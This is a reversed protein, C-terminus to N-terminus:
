QERRLGPLLHVIIRGAEPDVDRVVEEVAPLLIDGGPGRVIFVDNARTELVESVTGLREGDETEVSAGIIQFHYYEGPELPAADELSVLILMGRLKEADNRSDCGGLKLLAVDQHFRLGEVTRRHVADPSDPSSVYLAERNSLRDPYATVLGVRVEGRVGHPRLVRGVVLHSPEPLARAEPGEADESNLQTSTAM